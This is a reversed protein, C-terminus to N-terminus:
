KQYKEIVAGLLIYGYNSYEFKAGPELLLPEDIGLALYSDITKATDKIDMFKQMRLFDGTGATHTLLQEISINGFTKEPLNPLHKILKDTFSLKNKEALQAIAIGTFMKNMSALNFKTDINNMRNNSKDAFGAAKQYIIKNGKAILVTGSFRDSNSLDEVLKNIDSIQKENIQNSQSMGKIGILLVLYVVLLSTKKRM